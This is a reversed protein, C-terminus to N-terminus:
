RCCYCENREYFLKCSQQKLVDAECAKTVNGFAMERIFILISVFLHTHSEKYIYQM